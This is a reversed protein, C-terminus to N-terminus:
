NVNVVFTIITTQGPSINGINFGVNPDFTPYTAGDIQVSGTVFTTGQPVPDVFFIDTAIFPTPNNISVSYALTNGSAVYGKDALKTMILMAEVLKIKVTNTKLSFKLPKGTVPDKMEFDLVGYNDYSNVVVPNNAKVNFTIIISAGIQITPLVFGVTPDYSNYSVGGITVSGPVFTAGNTMVDKFTANAIANVTSNTITITMKAQEDQVLISKNSSKILKVLDTILETITTNSDSTGKYITDEKDKLSFNTKATNDLSM